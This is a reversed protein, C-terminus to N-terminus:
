ANGRRLRKSAAAVAGLGLGTLLMSAPEPVQADAISVDDLFWQAPDHQGDFALVTSSSTATLNFVVRQSYGFSTQPSPLSFVTVGGWRVAFTEGPDGGPNDNALFFSITYTSGTTTAITQSLTAVANFQGFAMASTGSNAVCISSGISSGAACVADFASGNTLTWGTLDGTEFGGNTITAARAPVVGVRVACLVAAATLLSNRFQSSM